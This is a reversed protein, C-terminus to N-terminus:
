ESNYEIQEYLYLKEFIKDMMPCGLCTSPVDNGDSHLRRCVETGKFNCVFCDKGDINLKKILRHGM